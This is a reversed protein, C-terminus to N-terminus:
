IKFIQPNRLMNSSICKRSLPPSLSFPFVMVTGLCKRLSSSADNCSIYAVWSVLLFGQNIYICSQRITEVLPIERRGEKKFLFVARDEEEEEYGRGCGVM